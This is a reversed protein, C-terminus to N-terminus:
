TPEEACSSAAVPGPGAAVHGRLPLQMVPRLRLASSLAVFRHMFIRSAADTRPPAQEDSHSTFGFSPASPDRRKARNGSM